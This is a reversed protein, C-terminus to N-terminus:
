KNFKKLIGKLRKERMKRHLKRGKIISKELAEGAEKSLIGHFDSLNVRKKEPINKIVESFSEKEKTKMRLLKNYADETVTITKTAMNICAHAGM